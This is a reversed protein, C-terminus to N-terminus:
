GDVVNDERANPDIGQEIMGLRERHTLIRHVIAVIMWAITPIGLAAAVILVPTGTGPNRLLTDLWSM